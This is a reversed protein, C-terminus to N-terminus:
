KGSYYVNTGDSSKISSLEVGTRGNQASELQGIMKGELGFNNIFNVTKEPMSTTVFGENGMPWKAYAVEARTFQKGAITYERWDAPFLDVIKVFINHKALPRALKGDFAGGSMHYFSTALNDEKLKKFLGYFITSPEELFELFIKGAETEHWDLGFLEPMIIRKDTIGNSRPNPNGRIAVLYEGPSPKPLNKLVFEDIVSVASGSINLADVGEKYSRIRKGVNQHQIIYDFDLNEGLLSAEAKMMPIPDFGNTEVVDSVVKVMAGFKISDDIKMALSDQLPLHIRGSREAFETKTGVGDSNMYIPKGEPDFVSYNIGNYTFIGLNSRSNRPITSIMTGSMNASVTVRDGLGALEGNLITLNFFNARQVLSNGLNEVLDLNIERVDIVNAFAIPISGIRESNFVLRDVLSGAYKRMDEEDPDGGVSHVVALKDQSLRLVALGNTGEHIIDIHPSNKLTPSCIKALLASGEDGKNIIERIYQDINSM